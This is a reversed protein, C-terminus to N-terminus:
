ADSKYEATRPLRQRFHATLWITIVISAVAVVLSITKYLPLFELEGSVQGKGVLVGVVGLYGASDALYMLFGLNAPDRMAALLREFLTTHFAVYPVYMGFGSLVMFAFPSLWGQTQGALAVLVLTFGGGVLGLTSLFAVRHDRLRIAAGNVLVVGLMILTESKAFIAPEGGEGLEDWIEVAFDDRLTRMVTLLTYALLLGILGPAHRRFFELRQAGNMPARATRAAVDGPTPPPIHRLLSVSIVLPVAFVLGTLFPMWTEAVDYTEILTRGVSKVVGSAVIFSACLGATLAETLRRGELFSLVLGFVMGLPLGNVFLCLFGLEQPALAFALLAAEAVAVLGLITAARRAPPMESVVKIGIFKSLTYGLLQSAVLVTKADIGWLTQGTYTGATFPKRFAYMCFYTGFAAVICFASFVGPRAGALARSLRSPSRMGQMM